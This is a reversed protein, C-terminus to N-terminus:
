LTALRTELLEIVAEITATESGSNTGATTLSAQGQTGLGALGGPDMALAGEGMGAMMVEPPPSGGGESTETGQQEGTGMEQALAQMQGQDMEEIAALQEATMAGEIQDLVAEVELSSATSSEQLAGLMQWLPLLEEAQTLTVALETDELMLTGLSLQGSPSLAMERAALVPTTAESASTASDAQNGGCAALAVVLVLLGVVM